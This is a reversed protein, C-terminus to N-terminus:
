RDDRSEIEEGGRRLTAFVPGPFDDLKAALERETLALLGRAGDAAPGALLRAIQSSLAPYVQEFRRLPDLTDLRERQDAEIHRTLLRTLHEVAKLLRQRASLHEGRRDRGMAIWLEAILQGLLWRDSPPRIARTASAVASMRASVDARDLLVRYRNVRALPLEDPNFVAFEILHPDAYLVKLGHVTERFHFRIDAPRPLWDLRNRFGEETGPEAVLFFDHDSGEDPGYDIEAMSGVAVLGVVSTHASIRELLEATFAHYAHLNM